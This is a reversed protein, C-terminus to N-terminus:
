LLSGGLPHRHKKSQSINPIPDGLLWMGDHIRNTKVQYKCLQMLVDLGGLLAVLSEAKGFIQRQAGTSFDLGYAGLSISFGQKSLRAYAQGVERQRAYVNASRFPSPGCRFAWSIAQTWEDTSTFPLCRSEKLHTWIYDAAEAINESCEGAAVAIRLSRSLRWIESSFMGGPDELVSVDAFLPGIIDNREAQGALDIFISLDVNQMMSLIKENSLSASEQSYANSGSRQQFWSSFRIGRSWLILM